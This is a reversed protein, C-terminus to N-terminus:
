NRKQAISEIFEWHISCIENPKVYVDIQPCCFVSGCLNWKAISLFLKGKMKMRQDVSNDRRLHHITIGKNHIIEIAKSNARKKKSDKYPFIKWNTYVFTGYHYFIYLSMTVSPSSRTSFFVNGYMRLKYEKLLQAVPPSFSRIPLMAAAAILDVFISWIKRLMKNQDELEFLAFHTINHLIIYYFHLSNM